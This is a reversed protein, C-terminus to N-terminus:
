NDPNALLDSRLLEIFEVFSKRDAVEFNLIQETM